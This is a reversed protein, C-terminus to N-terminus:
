GVVEKQRTPSRVFSFPLTVSLFPTVPARLVQCDSVEASVSDSLEGGHQWILPAWHDRQATDLDAVFKMGALFDISAPCLDRTGEQPLTGSGEALMSTTLDAGISPSSAPSESAMRLTPSADMVDM